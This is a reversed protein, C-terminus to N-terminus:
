VRPSLDRFPEGRAGAEARTLLRTADSAGVAVKVDRIRVGDVLTKPKATQLAALPEIWDVTAIEILGPKRGADDGAAADMAELAANLDDPTM